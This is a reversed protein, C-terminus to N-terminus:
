PNRTGKAGPTTPRVRREFANGRISTGRRASPPRSEERESSPARSTTTPRYPRNRNRLSDRRPPVPFEYGDGMSMGAMMKDVQRMRM